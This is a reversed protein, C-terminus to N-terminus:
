RGLLTKFASTARVALEDDPVAVRLMENAPDYTLSVYHDPFSFIVVVDSGQPTDSRIAPMDADLTSAWEAVNGAPSAGPPLVRKIVVSQARALEYRAALNVIAPAPTPTPANALLTTIADRFTGAVTINGALRSSMVDYGRVSATGDRLEFVITAGSPAPVLTADGKQAPEHSPAASPPGPPGVKGELVLRVLAAVRAPEAIRGIVTTNRKQDLLAIASVKGEIDLLDRGVKAAPNIQAEYLRLQGDHRAALRFAPAYGKVTFVPEGTPVFAADGDQTLHGLGLGATALTQKVRFHEPGLDADGIARGVARGGTEFSSLYDIGGWKVFDAYDVHASGFPLLACASLVVGFVATLHKM